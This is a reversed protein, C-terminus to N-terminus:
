TLLTSGGGIARLFGAVSSLTVLADHEGISLASGWRADDADGPLTLQDLGWARLQALMAAAGLKERLAVAMEEGRRDWGDVLMGHVTVPRDRVAFDGGGLGHEWWLAAVYLKIGSLPLVPAAVDRGVAASRLSGTAVDSVVIAGQVGADRLLAALEADAVGAGSPAGGQVAPSGPPAGPAPPRERCALLALVAIAVCSPPQRMSRCRGFARVCEPARDDRDCDHSTNVFRRTPPSPIELPLST